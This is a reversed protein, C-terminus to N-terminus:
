RYEELQCKEEVKRREMNSRHLMESLVKKAMRLILEQNNM